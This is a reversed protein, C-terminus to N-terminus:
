STTTPRHVPSQSWPLAEKAADPPARRRRAALRRYAAVAGAAVLLGVTAALVWPTTPHRLWGVPLQGALVVLTMAAVFWGFIRQLQGADVRTSWRAGALATTVAIATMTAALSWDVRTGHLHGLFGAASQASLVLLSTGVAAPMELGGLLVLAPVVLFGGGAGVLGTVAGVGVGQVLVLAPHLAPRPGHDPGTRPRRPRPRRPRLMATATVAMMAAFGILLAAEPLFQALWGGGYAGTMGAAAFGTGLRWRVRGARAHGVLGALSTVAVVFLSMAIASRVPVHALYILVPVTLISGGGGLLGLVLGILAAAVLVLTLPV